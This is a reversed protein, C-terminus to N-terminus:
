DQLVVRAPTFAIQASREALPDWSLLAEIDAKTVRQGDEKRLLNELM